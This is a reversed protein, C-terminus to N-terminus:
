SFYDIMYHLQSDRVMNMLYVAKKAFNCINMSQKANFQAIPIFDKADEVFLGDIPGM